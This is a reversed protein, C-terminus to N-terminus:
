NFKYIKVCAFAMPVDFIISNFYFFSLIFVYFYWFFQFWLSYNKSTTLPFAFLVLLLLFFLCAYLLTYVCM